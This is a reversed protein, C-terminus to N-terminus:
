KFFEFDQRLKGLAGSMRKEVAKVSIDLLQAIEIYKKGEMRSLLFVERQADTLNAIATQLKQMYENEEMIFDPSEHDSDDNPRMKEYELVVKHHRVENLFLNNAAQFLYSKAKSFTIESCKTWVKMFAEQVLDMAQSDDGCKYFMFRYLGDAHETYFSNFINDKCLESIEKSM